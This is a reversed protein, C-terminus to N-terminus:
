LTKLTNPTKGSEQQHLCGSNVYKIKRQFKSYMKRCIGSLKQLNQKDNQLTWMDTLKNGSVIKRSSWYCDLYLKEFDSASFERKKSDMKSKQIGCRQHTSMHATVENKPDFCVYQWFKSTQNPNNMSICHKFAFFESNKLTLFDCKSAWLFINAILQLINRTMKTM